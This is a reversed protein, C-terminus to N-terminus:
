EGSIKNTAVNLTRENADDLNVVVVDIQEDGMGLDLFAKVRQHGSVITDTKENWIVPVVYGFEQISTKLKQLQAETITRPNYDAPRLELVRKKTLKLNLEPKM